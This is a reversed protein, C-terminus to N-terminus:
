EGKVFKGVENEGTKKNIIQLTYFGDILATTNLQAQTNIFTTPLAIMRGQLDYVRIIAENNSTALNIILQSQVPNPHLSISDNPPSIFATPIDSSLKVIWYDSYFITDAGYYMVYYGEHWGTVDGDNSISNGAVIFGNDSTQQVAFTLDGRSGGLCKQWILNGNTDLRILWYDLFGHNGSVDGNNSVPSGAIIFGGDSTLQISYARDDSTGGLSKQWVINGDMDIKVIWYDCSGHNGSVNGDNSFSHGAVIFSGDTAQQISYGQENDSGGLSKQWELNGISSLKVIWYDSGGHNGSVDFDNSFSYGAVVFGGDTTTSISHAQDNASGGLCKQWELNGETDLKVIWYDGYGHNGSVDGDNSFSFGAVIFGSDTTQQVSQAQDNGSGGLSKQWVLAGSMDLKVIWYDDNGHNGTVDGDISNSWGAIIFGGELTQQISYAFDGASGGFSKQWIINGASDLKVIWVDHYGHNGSVDGNNSMSSGAVIFGGDITQQVSYGFDDSNGGLCKAWEISPVVQAHISSTATFVILFLFGRFINKM